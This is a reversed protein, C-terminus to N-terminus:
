KSNLKICADLRDQADSQFVVGFTCGTEWKGGLSELAFKVELFTKRDIQQAPLKVVRGQVTCSKLVEQKTM